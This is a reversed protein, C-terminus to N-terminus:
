TLFIQTKIGPLTRLKLCYLCSQSMWALFFHISPQQTVWLSEPLDTSVSTPSELPLATRLIEAPFWAAAAAPHPNQWTCWTCGVGSALSLQERQFSIYTSSWGFCIRQLGQKDCTMDPTLSWGTPPARIVHRLRAAPSAPLTLMHSAPLKPKQWGDLVM